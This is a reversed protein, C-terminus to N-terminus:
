NSNRKDVNAVDSGDLEAELEADYVIAIEYLKGSDIFQLAAMDDEYRMVKPPEPLKHTRPPLIFRKEMLEGNSWRAALQKPRFKIIVAAVIAMTSLAGVAIVWIPVVGGIYIAMWIALFFGGWGQPRRSDRYFEVHKSNTKTM